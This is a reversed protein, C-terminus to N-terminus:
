DTHFSDLPKDKVMQLYDLSQFGMKEYLKRARANDPEIELRIRAMGAGYEEELFRFFESGIGKGQYQPRVYLEEVWIVRGGAETSFTFALQVFGATKGETKLLYATLYPSQSVAENFAREFQTKPVPHLVADSHYFEELLEFFEERDEKHVKQIFM